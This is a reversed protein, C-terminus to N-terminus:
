SFFFINQDTEFSDKNEICANKIDEFSIKQHEIEFKENLQIKENL